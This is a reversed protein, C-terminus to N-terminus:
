ERVVLYTGLGLLAIGVLKLASIPDRTVGLLGFHDVLVSMTLQGTITAAVVAGAGLARVTVLVTTVYIAGLLGGTLYYWSLNRAEGVTGFGGKVLAVILTLTITGLAFSLFAAQFTGIQRGLMSNIPAQLAVFGGALATMGVALGRDM